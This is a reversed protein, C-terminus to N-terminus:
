KIFNKKFTNLIASMYKAKRFVGHKVKGDAQIGTGSRSGRIYKEYIYYGLGSMGREIRFLWSGTEWPMKSASALQDGSPMAVKFGWYVSSKTKKVVRPNARSLYTGLNLLNYVENVPREGDHFGIFSFLNGGGILTGSTNSAEPGAIIEKSVPHNIFDELMRKKALDFVEKSKRYVKDKVQKSSAMQKMGKDRLIKTFRAM